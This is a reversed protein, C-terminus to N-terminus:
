FGHLFRGKSGSYGGARDWVKLFVDHCIEQADEDNGVIARITGRINLAYMGYLKEFAAIDRNQLDTVLQDLNM